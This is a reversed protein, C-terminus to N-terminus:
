GTFVSQWREATRESVEAQKCFSGVDTDATKGRGGKSRELRAILEGTKRVHRVSLRAM